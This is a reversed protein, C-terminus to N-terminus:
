ARSRQRRGVMVIGGVVMVFAVVHYAHLAEGLLVIAMGATILARMYNGMTARNAGLRIVATNTCGVAGVAIASGIWAIIAVAKWTLPVPQIFVSEAVYLPLVLPIAAVQVVFLVLMPSMGAPLRRLSSNYYAFGAMAAIMILDGINWQLSALLALDGQSVIALVGITALVVGALQRPTAADRFLLWSFLMTVIPQSTALVGGNVATTFQYALYVGANGFVVLGVGLAVFLPWRRLLETQRARFERWAFPTVILTGILIRWFTVGMPPIEGQVWRGLIHNTSLIFAAFLLLAYYPADSSLGTGPTATEPEGAMAAAGSGISYM